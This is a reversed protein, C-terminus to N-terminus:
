CEQHTCSPWKLMWNIRHEREQVNGIFVLHDSVARARVPPKYVPGRLGLLFNRHLNQPKVLDQHQHRPSINHCQKQHSFCSWPKMVGKTWQYWRGDKATRTTYGPSKHCAQQTYIQKGVNDKQGLNKELPKEQHSHSDVRYSSKRLLGRAEWALTSM